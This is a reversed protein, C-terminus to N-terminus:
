EHKKCKQIIQDIKKLTIKKPKPINKELQWYKRGYYVLPNKLDASAELVEGVFMHHDGLTIQKILKCEANLVAEKIMMAKIRKAQYFIVGLTTLVKIKDVEYGTNNGAISTIVNQSSSALNVGFERQASINETTAHDSRIFIAILAPTYSIQHTWEASMINPGVPGDSTILGVNTVFVRARPDGWPINM